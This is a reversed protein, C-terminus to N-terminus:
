ILDTKPPVRILSVSETKVLAIGKVKDRADLKKDETGNQTAAEVQGEMKVRKAAPEQVEFEEGKGNVGNRIIKEAKTVASDESLIPQTPAIPEESHNGIPRKLSQEPDISKPIQESMKAPM